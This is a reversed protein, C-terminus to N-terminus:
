YFYAILQCNQQPTVEYIWVLHIERLQLQQDGEPGIKSRGANRINVCVSGKAAHNTTVPSTVGSPIRTTRDTRPAMLERCMTAKRSFCDQTALRLRRDPTDPAAPAAPRGRCPSCGGPVNLVCDSTKVWDVKSKAIVTKCLDHETAASGSCRQLRSARGWPLELSREPRDKERM